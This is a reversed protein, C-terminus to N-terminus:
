GRLGAQLQRIKINIDPSSLCPHFCYTESSCRYRDVLKGKLLVMKTGDNLLVEKELLETPNAIIKKKNDFMYYNFLVQDDVGHGSQSMINELMRIMQDNYKIYYFGCCTIFGHKRSLKYPHGHEISGIFDYPLDHILSYVDKLWICDSDTHIINKQSKKFISYIANLRFKWFADKSEIKYPCLITPITRSQLDNYTSQDLSVVLLNTLNLKQFHDYWINFIPLYNFDTFTLIITDADITPIVIDMPEPAAKPEPREQTVVRNMRNTEKSVRNYRSFLRKM